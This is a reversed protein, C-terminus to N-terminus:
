RRSDHRLDRRRAAHQDPRHPAARVDAYTLSSLWFRLQNARMTHSSTRDAFLTSSANRSTIRRRATRAIAGRTSRARKM